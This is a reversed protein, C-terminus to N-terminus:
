DNFLVTSVYRDGTDPLLVIINKGANEEKKAIEIAASLAAGASIGVVLAENKAALKAASIADQDKVTMVNDVVKLNLTKPIFNAGIGQLGHTGVKGQTILPSGFPEVGIIQIKSDFEKLGEGVGSITGGSGIGAVFFDIKGDTDKIIEKATTEKHIRPNAMNNFQDPIFSGEIQRHLEEARDIAGKMGLSSDTLVIEAGLQALIKRREISMSSPMTLILNYGMIASCFALGIGTNGSTPEILTDGKKILGRKEADIVMGYAARDKVSSLPNFYEVKAILRGKLGLKQGLRDLYVLPTNGILEILSSKINMKVEAVVILQILQIM